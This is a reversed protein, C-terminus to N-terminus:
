KSKRFSDLDIISMNSEKNGKSLLYNFVTKGLTTIMIEYNPYLNCTILGLYQLYKYYAFFFRSEGSYLEAISTIGYYKNEKFNQILGPFTKKTIAMSKVNDSKLVDKIFDDSWIYQFFLSYKEEERLRLYLTGKKTITLYSGKIVMLGLNISIFYYLNVLPFDKQNPSKRKITNSELIDEFELLHKRKIFKNKSTLELPNEVTYLLFKDFDFLFTQAVENLSLTLFSSLHKDIKFNTNAAKLKNMYSFRNNSIDLLQLYSDKYEGYFTNLFRLYKKLTSIYSNLSDQSDIFGEEIAQKFFVHFDIKDIHYLTLDEDVLYYEFFDILNSIHKGIIVNHYKNNLYLEFEDLEDYLISVIDETNEIADLICDGYIRYLTLTHEKLYEEMTISNNYRRILNLDIMVEEMFMSKMNYPLYNITGIFSYEDLLKGVRALIIEGESIVNTLLPEWINKVKDQLIDKVVVYEGIYDIIEFLSLYSDRRNYLIQMELDNLSNKEEQLFTEIYPKNNGPIYDTSLWLDVASKNSEDQFYPYLYDMEELAKDKDVNAEMYKLLKSTASTELKRLEEYNLTNM